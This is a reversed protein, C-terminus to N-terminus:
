RLAFYRTFTGADPLELELEIAAPLKSSPREVPPWDLAVKGDHDIIRWRVARVQDLLPHRELQNDGLSYTGRDPWRIWELREGNFRFSTLRTGVGEASLTLLRLEGARGDASRLLQLSPPASSGEPISPAAIQLVEAEVRQVARGLQRWRELESAIASQSAILQTSARWTLVGLLSFVALAILLEILTLGRLAPPRPVTRRPTSM